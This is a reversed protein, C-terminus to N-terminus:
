SRKREPEGTPAQGASSVVKGSTFTLSWNPFDNAVPNKFFTLMGDQTKVARVRRFIKKAHDLSESM